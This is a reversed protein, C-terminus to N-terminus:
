LFLLSVKWKIAKSSKSSPMLKHLLPRRSLSLWSLKGTLMYAGICRSHIAIFLKLTCLCIAHWVVNM